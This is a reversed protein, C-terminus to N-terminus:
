WLNGQRAARRQDRRREQRHRRLQRRVGQLIGGPVRDARGQNRVAGARRPPRAAPDPQRDRRLGAPGDDGHLGDRRHGVHLRLSRDLRQGQRAPRLLDSPVAGPGFGHEGPQSTEAISIFLTPYQAAYRPDDRSAIFGGVGGGGHMHIGLPQVTGVVLDAGYDVPAALVGLSIPDVGVVTQAGAARAIAAIEEAQHEIVGLYSPVEFYVAATRDTVAARLDDMDILGTAPDYAVLRI